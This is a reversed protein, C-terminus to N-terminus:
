QKRNQQIKSGRPDRGVAQRSAGKGHRREDIRLIRWNMHQRQEARGAAAGIGQLCNKQPHAWESTLMAAGDESTVSMRREGDTATERTENL